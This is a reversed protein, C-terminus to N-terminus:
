ALIPEKSSDILRRVDQPDYRLSRGIRISPLPLRHITSHSLDLKAAVENLTMLAGTALKQTASQAKDGSLEKHM